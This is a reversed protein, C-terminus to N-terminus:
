IYVIRIIITKVAKSKLQLRYDDHMRKEIM